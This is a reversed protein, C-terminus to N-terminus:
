VDENANSKKKTAATKTRKDGCKKRGSKRETKEQEPQKNNEPTNANANEDVPLEDEDANAPPSISNKEEGAKEYNNEDYNQDFHAEEEFSPVFFDATGARQLTLVSPLTANTTTGGGAGLLTTGSALGGDSSKQSKVGEVVLRSGRSSPAAVEGAAFQNVFSSRRSSSAADYKCQGVDWLWGRVTS